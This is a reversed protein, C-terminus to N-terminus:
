PVADSHPGNRRWICILVTARAGAYVDTRIWILFFNL